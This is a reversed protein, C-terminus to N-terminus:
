LESLKDLMGMRFHLYYFEWVEMGTALRELEPESGHLGPAGPGTGKTTLPRSGPGWTGHMVVSIGRGHEHPGHPV